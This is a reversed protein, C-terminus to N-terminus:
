QRCSKTAAPSKHLMPSLGIVPPVRFEWEQALVWCWSSRAGLLVLVPRLGFEPRWEM